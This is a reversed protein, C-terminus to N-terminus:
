HHLSLLLLQGIPHQWFHVISIIIIVNLFEQTHVHGCEVDKGLVKSACQM